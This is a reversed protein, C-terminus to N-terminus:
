TERRARRRFVGFTLLGGLLLPLGAPLPVVDLGGGSPAEGLEVALSFVEPQGISWRSHQATNTNSGGQAAQVGFSYLEVKLWLETGGLLSAGLPGNFAGGTVGGRVTPPPAEFLLDWDSGNMSGYLFTHGTSYAQKYSYLTAYLDAGLVVEGPNSTAFDFKYTIVGPTTTEFTEGGVIPQWFKPYGGYAESIEVNSSSEIYTQSSSYHPGFYSYNFTSANGPSTAGLTVVAACFVFVARRLAGAHFDTM